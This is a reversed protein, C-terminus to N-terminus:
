GGKKNAGLSLSMFLGCSVFNLVSSYLQEKFMYQVQTIYYTKDTKFYESMPSGLMGPNSQNLLTSFM